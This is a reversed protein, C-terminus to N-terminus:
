SALSFELYAYIYPNVLFNFIVLVCGFIYASRFCMLSLQSWDRQLDLCSFHRDCLMFSLLNGLALGHWIM